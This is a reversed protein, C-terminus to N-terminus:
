SNSAKHAPPSRRLPVVEAAPPPRRHPADAPGPPEIALIEMCGPAFEWASLTALEELGGLTDRMTLELAQRDARPIDPRPRLAPGKM